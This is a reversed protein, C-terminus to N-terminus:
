ILSNKLFYMQLDCSSLLTNDKPWRGKFADCEVKQKKGDIQGYEITATATGDVNENVSATWIKIKGSKETGYLTDFTKSKLSESGSM